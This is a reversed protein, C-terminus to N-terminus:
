VLNEQAVRLLDAASELLDFLEEKSDDLKEITDEIAKRRKELEALPLGGWHIEEEDDDEDTFDDDSCSLEPCQEQKRRAYEGELLKKEIEARRQNRELKDSLIHIAIELNRGTATPKHAM